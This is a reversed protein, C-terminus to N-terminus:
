IHILSLLEILHVRGPAGMQRWVTAAWAGILEGFMQSVEPATIFDGAAGFPDRTMYYGHRPHGLCLAMYRAFPMPGDAAILRRIEAELPTM